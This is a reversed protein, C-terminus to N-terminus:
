PLAGQHALAFKLEPHDAICEPGIPLAFHPDGMQREDDRVSADPAVAWWEGDNTRTLWIRAADPGTRRGCKACHHPSYPDVTGATAKHWNDSQWFAERGSDRHSDHAATASIADDLGLQRVEAADLKLGVGKAAARMIRQYPTM